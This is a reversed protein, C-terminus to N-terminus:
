PDLWSWTDAGDWRRIRADVLAEPPFMRMNVGMRDLRDPGIGEWHTPCGCTACRKFALLGDGWTYDQLAGEAAVM